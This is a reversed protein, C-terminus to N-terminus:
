PFSIVLIQKGKFIKVRMITPHFIHLQQGRPRCLVAAKRYFDNTFRFNFCAVKEGTLEEQGWAIKVAGHRKSRLVMCLVIKLKQM